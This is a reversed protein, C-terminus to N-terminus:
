TMREDMWGMGDWGMGHWEMLQMWEMWWWKSKPQSLSWIKFSLFIGAARCCNTQKKTKTTPTHSLPLGIGSVVVMQPHRGYLAYVHHHRKIATPKDSSHINWSIRCVKPTKWPPKISIENFFYLPYLRICPSILWILWCPLWGDPIPNTFFFWPNPIM